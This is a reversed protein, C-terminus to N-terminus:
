TAYREDNFVETREDKAFHLAVCDIRPHETTFSLGNTELDFVVPGVKGSM